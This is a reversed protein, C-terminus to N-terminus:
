QTNFSRKESDTTGGRGDDATVKWHYTTGAKLGNLTKTIDAAPNGGGPNPNGGGGGGGGGGGNGCGSLLVGSVVLVAMFMGFRRRGKLSGVIVFGFVLGVGLSLGAYSLGKTKVAAINSETICGVTLAADECVSLTYTLTDGDPDTSRNWGFDVDPGTVAEGNAPFVLEPATSASNGTVGTGDVNVTVQNEDPDNSPIDFTDNFLGITTPSFRVTLTCSGTPPLTSGSCADNLISFPASIVDFSAIAGILLNANGDNTLTVTQDSTNGDTVNGFSMQLDAAPAVTDTVTIDPVPIAVGTGSVSVTVPNEDPDDSPIDFTDNFLGTATPSFAVTFTCNGAPLLSAGSCNDNLISFPAALTDALAVTGIGLPANGDNTVTITKSSTNGDTVDGFPVQLDNTPAVSDAVTIDPVPAALGNGDVSVIVPDEDPDNSPIDFTDNFPGTATPSFRLTLLCNGTPALSAGSCNDNLISFPAAIDDAFAVTNLNLPANGDNTVTVTQDSTGGVTVGGFPVQLDTAPAVSDNVTIDPAPSALGTGSISVIVPNEDPDNSPIDFTDSFTGTVAPSFRVTLLCNGTPPLSAGSCNDNLISFPAAVPNAQAITSINLNANGDNTVTVTKDSITGVTISGFPVQLDNGPAVADSVTIDPAPPLVGTGDVSVTVPNEDPDNSPIDFSDSFAGPVA